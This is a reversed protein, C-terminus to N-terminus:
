GMQQQTQAANMAQEMAKQSHAGMGQATMQVGQGQHECESIVPQVGMTMTSLPASPQETQAIREAVQAQLAQATQTQAEATKEQIKAIHAAANDRSVRDVGRGIGQFGGVVMGTPTGIGGGVAGGILAGGIASAAAVFQPVAAMGVWLGGSLVFGIAGLVLAGTVAGFLVGRWLGGGAGGLLGKGTEGVTIATASGFGHEAPISDDKRSM